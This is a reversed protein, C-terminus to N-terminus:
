APRLAPIGRLVLLVLWTLLIFPLSLVPLGLPVLVLACLTQFAPMAAAAALGVALSAWGPRLFVAGLAIAALVANFGFLGARIAVEPVGIFSAVAASSLGALGAVLAVRPSGALLALAILIGSLPSSQLFIQAIGSFAGDVLMWDSLGAPVPVDRASPGDAGRMALGIWVAAWTCLVFPATMPPLAVPSRRRLAMLLVSSLGAAGLALPWLALGADLFLPAAIAVLSGNYGYLGLRLDARDAKLLLATGTGVAAGAFAYAAQLPANLFIAALCLLGTYSNGLFVVQGVGRLVADVFMLTAALGTLSDADQRVGLGSKGLRLAAMARTM